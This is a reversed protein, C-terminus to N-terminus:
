NPAEPTGPHTQQRVSREHHKRAPAVQLWPPGNPARQLASVGRPWAAVTVDWESPRAIDNEELSDAVVDDHARNPVLPFLVMPASAPLMSGMCSLEPAASEFSRTRLLRDERCAENKGIRSSASGLAAQYM